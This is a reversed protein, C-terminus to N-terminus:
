DKADDGNILRSLMHFHEQSAYSDIGLSKLSWVDHGEGRSLDDGCQADRYLCGVGDVKQVCSVLGVTGGRGLLLRPM